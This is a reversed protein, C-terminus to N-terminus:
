GGARGFRFLNRNGCSGRNFRNGFRRSCSFDCRFRCGSRCGYSFLRLDTSLSSGFFCHPLCLFSDGFLSHGLSWCGSRFRCRNHFLLSGYNFLRCGGRGYGYGRGDFFNRLRAEDFLVPEPYESQNDDYGPVNHPPPFLICAIVSPSKGPSFSFGIAAKKGHGPILIRM